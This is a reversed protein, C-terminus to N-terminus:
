FLAQCITCASSTNTSYMDSPHISPHIFVLARFWTLHTPKALGPRPLRTCRARIRAQFTSCGRKGQSGLEWPPSSVLTRALGACPISSLSLRPGRQWSCMAGARTHIGGPGPGRRTPGDERQAHHSNWLCSIHARAVAEPGRSVGGM